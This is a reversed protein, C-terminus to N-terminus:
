PMANNRQRWIPPSRSIYMPDISSRSSPPLVSRCDKGLASVLVVGALCSRDLSSTKTSPALSPNLCCIPDLSLMSSCAMRTRPNLISCRASHILDPLAPNNSVVALREVPPLSTPLHYLSHRVCVRGTSPRGLSDIQGDCRIMLGITAKTEGVFVSPKRAALIAVTLLCVNM